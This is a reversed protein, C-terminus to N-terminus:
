KAAIDYCRLHDLDRLYLRSNAVVPYTWAKSRDRDPQDAPTFRGKERYGEPTAEVLAVDGNEGHLYLRGEAVCISAAGICRDEWRVDGTAYEVCQLTQGAAGYMFDGRLVVGGIGIPLKKSFYVAEASWGGPKAQVRAVAGGVLGASSYVLGDRAVPTQIYGGSKLDATDSFRWLLRGTAADVGTLGQKLCQVYQKVDGISTVITSAYTAEDGGQIACKWIVEGTHKNLALIAAAEGGPACVLKDGDILPSESYAWVGPKGGFDTRLHRRWRAEGAVTDLCALDGDSGLVYLWDGEVTPTSRAGPYNPKQEPQGVKGLHTSWVLRGDAAARAQVFEDNLGRNGLLYLRDGSVAPTSYGSGADTIRWLLKPGGDPWERLLGTEASIGDRTPGRWQPWDEAVTSLSLGALLAAAVQIRRPAPRSTLM